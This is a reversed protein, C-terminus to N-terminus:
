FYKWKKKNNNLIKVNTTTIIKMVRNQNMRFSVTFRISLSLNLLSTFYTFTKSITFVSLYSMLSLITINFDNFHITYSTELTKERQTKKM